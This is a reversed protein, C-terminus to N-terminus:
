KKLALQDEMQEILLKSEEALDEFLYVHIGSLRGRFVLRNHFVFRLLDNELQSELDVKLNSLYEIEDQEKYIVWLHYHNIILSHLVDATIMRGYTYPIVKDVLPEIKKWIKTIESVPVLSVQYM